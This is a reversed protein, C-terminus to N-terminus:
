PHDILIGMFADYKEKVKDLSFQVILKKSGKIAWETPLTPGKRFKTLREKVSEGRPAAWQSGEIWVRGDIRSPHVPVLDYQIPLFKTYKLFDLHGSYNTAIVPLGACSADLLPLGWGEGRTPAVLAKVVPSKYLTSIESQDLMGHALYFRPFPGTKIEKMLNEFVMVSRNRDATTFRGLNTKVIIGVDKDEKFTEALWRLTWFTNKRDNEPNDGTLQGFVLFNFSTPLSQLKEDLNASIDDCHSHAEPIVVIKDEPVGSRVFTSKTFQSPVIVKHMRGCAEVWSQSCIDSEVGATVGINIKALNPDWEDPLQVQFSIDPNQPPQTCEMIEGILGDLSDPNVYFTCIGWPVIVASVDHGRSIAWSFIQRTHVGYGTVSLLPGKIAIKM